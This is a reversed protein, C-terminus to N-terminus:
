KPYTLTYPVTTQILDALTKTFTSLSDFAYLEVQGPHLVNLADCIRALEGEFGQNIASVTPAPLPAHTVALVGELAVLHPSQTGRMAGNPELFTYLLSELLKAHRANRSEAPVAYEQTIDNLGIRALELNAVIAYIGSSAPRHFIAQGLNAGRAEETSDEKRKGESRENAYKVHFYSDTTTVEPIGVVWGFEVVSKRPLSKKGETILNGAIDDLACSRLMDTLADADTMDKIREIYAGDASIRNANLERCGACLPVARDTSAVRFFHEALIHKYMDGSVANVNYLRGDEGVINVMRTQIQNGEGGENNLSHMDLTARASISLSYLPTKESM